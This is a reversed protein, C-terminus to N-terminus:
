SCCCVIEFSYLKLTWDDMSEVSAVHTVVALLKLSNMTEASMLKTLTLVM